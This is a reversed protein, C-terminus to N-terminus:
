KYLSQTTLTQLDKKINELKELKEEINKINEEKEKQTIEIEDQKKKLETEYKESIMAITNKLYENFVAPLEHRLKSKIAPIVESNIKTEIQKKQATERAKKGIFSLIEPLFVIIIEVIPAVVTTTLGLITTITKYITNTSSTDPKYNKLGNHVNELFVKTGQSLKDLWREDFNFSSEQLNKLELNFNDIFDSSIDQIRTKVESVLTTKIISNLEQTFTEQNSLAYSILSEKQININTSVKNIIGDINTGTYKDEVESILQEKKNLINDISNQLEKITNEVEEKSTKYTSIITNLSNEMEFHNSKLEDIFVSEFLKESDISKLIKELEFGSDNGVLVVDKEFDFYDELQEKIKEKIENVESQPKLNTKSLCFSFDKGVEMINSIERDMSKTINGDEVSTLIIFYIGKSLYSLIAQNHHEIPADFGPMDVLVLPQIDKLKQHNLYLKIYKYVSAKEKLKEIDAIEYKDVSEDKKVAEIYENQSYRLETALATEPTIATSLIDQGLFHNILTSKGASFGGVVPVILETQKIQELLNNTNLKDISLDAIKRSVEKLYSIFKKQIQLM